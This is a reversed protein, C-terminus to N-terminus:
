NEVLEPKTMLLWDNPDLIIEVPKNKSRIILETTRSDINSKFSELEDNDYKLNM